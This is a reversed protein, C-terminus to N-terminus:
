DRGQEDLQDLCWCEAAAGLAQLAPQLSTQSLLLAARSDDLMHRLREAPFEPDLPVYAGGAKLVALLAVMLQPGRELCVGVLGDPGVGAAQLRHALRNAQRNLEAYSLC